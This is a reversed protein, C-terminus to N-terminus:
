VIATLLIIHIPSREQFQLNVKLHYSAVYQMIIVRLAPWVYVPPVIPILHLTFYKLVM